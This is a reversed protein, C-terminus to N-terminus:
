TCINRTFHICFNFDCDGNVRDITIMDKVWSCYGVHVQVLDHGCAAASPQSRAHMHNNQM